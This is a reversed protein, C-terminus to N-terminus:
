RPFMAEVIPCADEHQDREEATDFAATCGVCPYPYSDYGIPYEDYTEHSM